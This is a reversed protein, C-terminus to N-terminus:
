KRSCRKFLIKFEIKSTCVASNNLFTQFMEFYLRSCFNFLKFIQSNQLDLFFRLIKFLQSFDSFKSFSLFIQSNQFGLFFRLIKFVYSFDLNIGGPMLKHLKVLDHFLLVLIKFIYFRSCSSSASLFENLLCYM